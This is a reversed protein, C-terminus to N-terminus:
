FSYNPGIITSLFPLTHQTQVEPQKPGRRIKCSAHAIKLVAMSLGGLQITFLM